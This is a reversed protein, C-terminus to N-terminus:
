EDGLLEELDRNASRLFRDVQKLARVLMKNGDISIQTVGAAEMSAAHTVFQGAQNRLRRAIKRLRESTFPTKRSNKETVSKKKAHM